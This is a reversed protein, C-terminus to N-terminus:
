RRLEQMRKSIVDIVEFTSPIDGDMKDIQLRGTSDRVLSFSAPVIKDGKRVNINCSIVNDKTECSGEMDKDRIKFIPM